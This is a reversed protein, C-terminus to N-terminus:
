GKSSRKLVKKKWGKEGCEPCKMYRDRFMHPAKLVDIYKDPIFAEGCKDCEYYGTKQELLVSFSTGLAFVTTGSIVFIAKVLDNFDGYSAAWISSIFAVTSSLLTIDEAAFLLKNKEEESM